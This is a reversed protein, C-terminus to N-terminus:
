EYAVILEKRFSSFSIKEINKFYRSFHSPDEFGLRFAIEKSSLQTHVGLRKAETIIRQQIYEKASKGIASKVVSNLYDPSINLVDAYNIVKHWQTFKKELEIKFRKIIHHSNKDMLSFDHNPSSAYKNCEIVFLKLYAGLKDLKYLEDGNFVKEMECILQALNHVGEKDLYIPPVNYVDSFLGLNQIFDENIHNQQLFRQSFLIVYGSAGKNSIVQHVQGPSVFFVKNSKIQYEKYDIFHQGCAEKAWLITYYNHRHPVDKINQSTVKAEIEEMTRFAFDVIENNHILDIAPIEM